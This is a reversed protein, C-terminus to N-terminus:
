SRASSRSRSARDPGAQEPERAAPRRSMAAAAGGTGDRRRRSGPAALHRRPRRALRHVLQAPELLRLQRRALLHHVRRPRRYEGVAGARRPGARTSRSAATPASHDRNDGMLFVHGAPVTIPAIITARAFRRSRDHRLYRGNPLTERLSPLRCYISGTRGAYRPLRRLRSADCPVNADVPIMAPPRPERPVPTGNLYVTGDVCRSAHRRAPRDGAQYLGITAAAAAHRHRRRRAGAAARLLRGSWARCSTSARRRGLSWGYPYKSVVLRDGKSCARADDIRVPHLLAQRRLQPLRAGGPDALLDGQDRAWWDTGAQRRSRRRRAQRTRRADTAAARTRQRRPRSRERDSDTLHLEEPLAEIVVFAQAWPHDDTLTLHVHAAHGAPTM